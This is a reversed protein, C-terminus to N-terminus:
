IDATCDPMAIRGINCKMGASVRATCLTISLAINGAVSM